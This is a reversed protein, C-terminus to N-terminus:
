CTKHEWIEAMYEVDGVEISKVRLKSSGVAAFRYFLIRATNNKIICMTELAGM